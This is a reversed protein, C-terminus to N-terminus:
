NKTVARIPHDETEPLPGITLEVVQSDDPGPGLHLEKVVYRRGCAGCLAARNASQIVFPTGDHTCRGFVMLQWHYIEVEPDPPPPAANVDLANRFEPPLPKRGGVKFPISSDAM